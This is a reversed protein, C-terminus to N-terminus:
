KLESRIRSMMVYNVYKGDRWIAEKQVGEVEFGFKEYLNRARENTELVLLWLRRLNLVGFCYKIVEQMMKTGYGKKQFEPHIDGGVCASRNARDIQTIRIMGVRSSVRRDSDSSTEYVIFYRVSPDDKIGNFWKRQDEAGLISNDGLYNRVGNRLKMLWDLDDSSVPHIEITKEM